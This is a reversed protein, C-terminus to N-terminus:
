EEDSHADKKLKKSPVKFLEIEEEEKDLHAQSRTQRRM